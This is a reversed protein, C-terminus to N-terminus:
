SSRKNRQRFQKKDPDQWLWYALFIPFLVNLFIAVCWHKIQLCDGSRNQLHSLMEEYKKDFKFLKSKIFNIMEDFNLYEVIEFIIDRPIKDMMQNTVNLSQERLLQTM